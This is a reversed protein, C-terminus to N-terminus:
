WEDDGYHLHAIEETITRIRTIEARSLRKKWNTVSARSNLKVSGSKGAPLEAPHRASSADAIRAMARDSFDLDLTEYLRRYEGIPDRSLDEHRVAVLDATKRRADQVAGYVAKWLLAAQGVIDDAEVALMESRYRELHDRMLLPQDLLDRFDFRWGLRRLSGAFAAPHRITVVVRCHLRRAFWPISFVAFPDKILVRQKRLLGNLFTALDRGLRCADFPSRVSRLAPVLPYDLDLLREFARLYTGENEAAIYQYWHAAPARMLAPHQRRNLPEYVYAAQAGAALM